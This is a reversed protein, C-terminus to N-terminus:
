SKYYTLEYNGSPMRYLSIHVYRRTLKGELNNLPLHYTVTTEYNVHETWLGDPYAIQFKSSLQDEVYQLAESQTKFYTQSGYTRM